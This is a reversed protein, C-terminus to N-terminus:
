FKELTPPLLNLHMKSVKRCTVTFSAELDAMRLGLWLTKPLSRRAVSDLQRGQRRVARRCPPCIGGTSARHRSQLTTRLRHSQHRPRSRPHSNHWGSSPLLRPPRSQTKTSLRVGAQPPSKEARSPLTQSTSPKTAVTQLLIRNKEQAEPTQANRRNLAAQLEKTGPDDTGFKALSKKLMEELM